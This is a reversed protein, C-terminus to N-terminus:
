QLEQVVKPIGLMGIIPLDTQEPGSGQEALNSLDVVLVASSRFDSLYLRKRVSDIALDFPGNLNHLVGVITSREADILYMQKADFCSVAVIQREGVKGLAMRMPGDGVTVIERAPVTPSALAVGSESGGAVDVFLLSAPRDGTVLLQGEHAPNMRLARTNRQPAVGDIVVAGVDYTYSADLANGSGEVSLGLRSLMRSTGNPANRNYLSLYAVHGVPDFEIGTPELPLQDLVHILKPGASGGPDHFLSVQGWRHAVMLFDGSASGADLGPAASEAHVSVMSVPEGPFVAGRANESSDVGRRRGDSCRRESGEDCDLVAEGDATEDLDIYLLSPDTRAALYLRKRDPAISYSTALSPVLVEDVLVDSSEVQCSLGPEECKLKADLAELDFAQVSGR